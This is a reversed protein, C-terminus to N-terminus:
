VKVALTIMNNGKMGGDYLIDSIRNSQILAQGALLKLVGVATQDRSVFYDYLDNKKM